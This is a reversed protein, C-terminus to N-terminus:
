PEDRSRDVVALAGQAFRNPQKPRLPLNLVLHKACVWVAGMYRRIGLLLREGSM